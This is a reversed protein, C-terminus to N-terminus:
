KKYLEAPLSDSFELLLHDREGAYDVRLPNSRVLSDTNQRIKMTLTTRVGDESQEMLVTGAHAAAASRILLMGLGIGFRSDEIGPQRRYRDYADPRLVTRGDTTNSVSLYLMLKKRQLRVDVTSGKQAFKLANSLLNSVARELKESNSLCYVDEDPQIYRLKLGTHELLPAASSVTERILSSVNHIQMGPNQDMCYRYGDSMNSVIRLLQYLGRNIRALQEQLQPDDEASKMPFLRDAITMVNALPQRLEQAALAMVQLDQQVEEQEPRFLHCGNYETVSAEVPLGALKLTLYLCGGSFDAYEQAGTLLLSAIDAGESIGHKRAADNAAIVNGDKVCFASRELLDLMATLENTKEM